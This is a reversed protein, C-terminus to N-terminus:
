TCYLIQWPSLTQHFMGSAVFPFFGQLNSQNNMGVAKDPQTTQKYTHMDIHTQPFPYMEAHEEGRGFNKKDLWMFCNVCMDEVSSDRAQLLM